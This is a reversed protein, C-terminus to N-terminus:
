VVSYPCSVLAGVFEGIERKLVHLILGVRVVALGVHFLFVQSYRLKLM